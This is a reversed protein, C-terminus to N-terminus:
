KSINKSRLFLDACIKAIDRSVDEPFQLTPPSAFGDALVITNPKKIYEIAASRINVNTNPVIPSDFIIQLQDQVARCYLTCDSDTVEPALYYNDYIYAFSDGTFRKAPYTRLANIAFGLSAVKYFLKVECRVLHRYDGPLAFQRVDTTGDANFTLTDSKVLVRVRDSVVQTLEYQKLEEKVWENVAENIFFRFDPLDFDPASYRNLYFLVAQYLDLTTTM